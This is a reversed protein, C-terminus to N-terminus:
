FPFLFSLFAWYFIYPYVVIETCKILTAHWINRKKEVYYDEVNVQNYIFQVSFLLGKKLILIGRRHLKEGWM